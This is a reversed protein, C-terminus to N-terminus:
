DDMEAELRGWGDERDSELDLACGLNLISGCVCVSCGREKRV